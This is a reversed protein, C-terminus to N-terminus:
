TTDSKRKYSCSRASKYASHLRKFPPDHRERLGVSTPQADNKLHLVDAHAFPRSEPVRSGTTLAVRGALLAHPPELRLGAELVEYASTYEYYLIHFM